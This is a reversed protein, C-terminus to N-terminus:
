TWQGNILLRVVSSLGQGSLFKMTLGTAFCGSGDIGLDVTGGRYFSGQKRWVGLSSEGEALTVRCILFGCTKGNEPPAVCAQIPKPGSFPADFPATLITM